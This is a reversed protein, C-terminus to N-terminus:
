SEAARAAVGASVAVKVALVQAEAAASRAEADFDPAACIFLTSCDAGGLACAYTSTHALRIEDLIEGGERVRMVRRGYADAVWIAGEADPTAIGDPGAVLTAAAAAVDDSAPAPGFVAWPRRATLEGSPLRDFATLRQGMTEAVVVGSGPLAVIGNPVYFGDAAVATSGDPRVMVVPATRLPDGAFPNFSFTSVYATGDTDVWMDNILHGRTYSSLDAHQVLEGSPERRLILQDLMSAILLRGDPLWGLGSPQNPVVAEVRAGGHETTSVVQHGYFDSVWLRDEHWRPGEYFHGGELVVSVDASM